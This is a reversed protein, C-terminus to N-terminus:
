DIITPLGICYSISETNKKGNLVLVGDYVCVDREGSVCLTYSTPDVSFMECGTLNLKAVSYKLM